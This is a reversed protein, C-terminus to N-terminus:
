KIEFVALYLQIGEVQAAASAVRSVEKHKVSREAKIIVNSKGNQFGERVAASIAAEQAKHDKPLSAGIKGDALYIDASKGGSDAITVFVASSPDAGKGYRAPALEVATNVDPISSILFFILLLFVCDIMPTMDVEGEQVLPPRFQVAAGSDDDEAFPKDWADNHAM